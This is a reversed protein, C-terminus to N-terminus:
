ISNFKAWHLSSLLTLALQIEERRKEKGKKEKIIWNRESTSDVKPKHREVETETEAEAETESQSELEFQM